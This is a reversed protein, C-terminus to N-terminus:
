TTSKPVVYNQPDLLFADSKRVVKRVKKEVYATEKASLKLVSNHSKFRKLFKKTLKALSARNGLKDMLEKLIEIWPFPEVSTLLTDDAGNALMKDLLEKSADVLESEHNGGNGSDQASGNTSEGSNDAKKQRGGVSKSEANKQQQFEKRVRLLEKELINWVDDADATSWKMCNTVFNHFKTKKQPINNFGRLAKLNNQVRTPLDADRELVHNIIDLWSDQVKNKNKPEKPMFNGGSYKEAESICQTHNVYDEGYFDKMCDMCSVSKVKQRCSWLYHKEVAAKKVSEGCHNCIFFVM